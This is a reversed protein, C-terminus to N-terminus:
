LLFQNKALRYITVDDVVGGEPYCLVSYKVQSISLTLINSLLLKQLNSLADKGRVEIEGMHSVDFLGVKERVNQHEDIIGKYYIPMEWGAFEVMRGHYAKHIEYPATRKGM